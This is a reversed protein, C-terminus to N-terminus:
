RPATSEESLSDTLVAALRVGAMQLRREVVGVSELYYERGLREGPAVGFAHTRAAALSEDAWSLPDLDTRWGASAGPDISEYLRSAMREWRTVGPDAELSLERLRRELIGRDWVWHLSESEGFFKLFTANGGRGDTHSVHLPQHIDGVLHTLMRLAFVKEEETARDDALERRWRDIGGLVCTRDPCDRDLAVREARPDANMYHYPKLWDYREFRRAHSDAWTSTEALTPYDRDPFLTEVRQRIEPTLHLWALRGV